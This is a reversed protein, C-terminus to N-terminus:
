IEKVDSDSASAAPYRFAPLQLYNNRASVLGRSFSAKKLKLRRARISGPSECTIRRLTAPDYAIDAYPDIKQTTEAESLSEALTALELNRKRSRCSRSTRLYSSEKRYQM